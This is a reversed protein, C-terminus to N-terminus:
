AVPRTTGSSGQCPLAAAGLGGPMDDCAAWTCDSTRHHWQEAPTVPGSESKDEGWSTHESSLSLFTSPSGGTPAGIQSLVWLWNHARVPILGVGKRHISPARVLWAVPWLQSGDEM